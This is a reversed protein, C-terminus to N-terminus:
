IAPFSARPDDTVAAFEFSGNHADKAYDLYKFLYQDM